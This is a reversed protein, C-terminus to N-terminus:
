SKENKFKLIEAMAWSTTPEDSNYKEFINISYPEKNESHNRIYTLGDSISLLFMYKRLYEEVISDTLQLLEDINQHSLVHKDNM